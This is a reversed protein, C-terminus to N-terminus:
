THGLKTRALLLHDPNMLNFWSPEVSKEIFQFYARFQRDEGKGPVRFIMNGRGVFPPLNISTADKYESLGVAYTGHTEIHLIHVGHERLYAQAPKLDTEDAVIQSPSDIWIKPPTGIVENLYEFIPIGNVTQREVYSAFEPRRGKIRDNIHWLKEPTHSITMEGFKARSHSKTEGQLKIQIGNEIKIVHFDNGHGARATPTDAEMLNLKKLVDAVKQEKEFGAYASDRILHPPKTLKSNRVVVENDSNEIRVLTHYVDNAIFSNLARVRTGKEIKSTETKVASFLTHTYGDEKYEPGGLLFPFVYKEAHDKGKYGTSSLNTPNRPIDQKVTTEVEEIIKIVTNRDM